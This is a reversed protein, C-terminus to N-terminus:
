ELSMSKDAVISGLNIIGGIPTRALDVIARREDRVPIINDYMSMPMLCM